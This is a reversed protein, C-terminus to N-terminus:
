GPATAGVYLRVTDGEDAYPPRRETLDVRLGGDEFAAFVEELQYLTAAFPVSAGLFEEVRIEGAGEHFSALVTGGPQLVRAIEGVAVPLDDRRLHVLSYFAVVGSATGTALPLRLADAAVAADLRSAALSAMARSLDVGLVAHTGIRLTAGVQGPGCGVDVIPGHRPLAEAFAALLARDRPKSALEDAFRDEYRRAVVDYSLGVDPWPTSTM